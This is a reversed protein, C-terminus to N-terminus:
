IAVFKELISALIGALVPLAISSLLRLMAFRVGLFPIEYAIMRYFAFVSWSTLFAVLPALGAGSQHLIAIMPFCLIPGGPLFGGVLTALLIGPMGSDEGLWRVVLETPILASFFGSFLIAMLIRPFFSVMQDRAIRLGQLHMKGPRFYAVIALVLVMIWM